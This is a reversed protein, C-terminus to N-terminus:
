KRSQAGEINAAPGARLVRTSAPSSVPTSKWPAITDIIIKIGALASEIEGHVREVESKLSKQLSQLESSLSELGEISNSTLRAVSSRIREPDLRTETAFGLIARYIRCKELKGCARNEGQNKQNIYTHKIGCMRICLFSDGASTVRQNASRDAPRHGAMRPESLRRRLGHM